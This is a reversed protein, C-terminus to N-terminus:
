QTPRRSSTFLAFLSFPVAFTKIEKVRVLFSGDETPSGQMLGKTLVQMHLHLAFEDGFAM